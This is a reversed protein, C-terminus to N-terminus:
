RSAYEVVIVQGDRLEVDRPDGAVREGNVSIRLTAGDGACYPGLCREDLPLGWVDFVEGLHFTRLEASEIHIQGDDDHTHIPALFRADPAMGIGAPIPVPRGDIVIALGVHVHLAQGEATLAPLGIAELRAELAQGNPPWPAPATLTGPLAEAAHAGEAPRSAPGTERLVLVLAAVLAVVAAGLALAVRPLATRREGDPPRGDGVGTEVDM